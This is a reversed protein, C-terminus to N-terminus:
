YFLGRVDFKKYWPAEPPETAYKRISNSRIDFAEDAALRITLTDWVYPSTWKWIYAPIRVNRNGVEDQGFMVGPVLGVWADITFVSQLGPLTEFAAERDMKSQEDKWEDANTDTSLGTSYCASLYLETIKWSNGVKLGKGIEKMIERVSDHMNWDPDVVQGFIMAQHPSRHYIFQLKVNGVYSGNTAIDAFFRAAKLKPLDSLKPNKVEVFDQDLQDLRIPIVLTPRLARRQSQIVTLASTFSTIKQTDPSPKSREMALAAEMGMEAGWLSTDIGFKIAFDTSDLASIGEGPALLGSPDRGTLPDNGAYLFENPGGVMGAPDASTFRGLSPDYMRARNYYLGTVADQRAGAFGYPNASAVTPAILDEGWATYTRDDLVNGKTDLVQRVSGPGQSLCWRFAPQGNIYEFFGLHNDGGGRAFDKLLPVVAGNSVTFEFSADTGDNALYRTQGTLNDTESGRLGEPTITWTKNVGPGLVGTLHGQVDYSYSYTGDNTIRGDPDYGRTISQTMAEYLVVENIVVDPLQVLTLPNVGTGGQPVFIRVAAALQPALFTVKVTHLHTGATNSSVRFGQLIQYLPVPQFAGGVTPAVEVQFASLGGGGTPVSVEVASIPLPATNTLSLELFHAVANTNSRWGSGPADSDPAQGENALGPEYAPGNTSDASAQILSTPVPALTQGTQGTLQYASNYTYTTVNGNFVRSLRNGAPDYGIQDEYVRSGDSLRTWTESDLYGRPDYQLAASLGKSYDVINTVLDRPDYRYAVATLPTVSVGSASYTLGTLRGKQDRSLSAGAVFDLGSVLEWGTLRGVDDSYLYVQQSEGSTPAISAEILNEFDDWAYQTTYGESGQVSVLDGYVGYRYDLENTVGIAKFVTRRALPRDLNDWVYEIRCNTDEVSAVRGLADYTTIEIRAVTGSATYETSNTVRGFPDVAYVIHAGSPYTLNTLEGFANYQRRTSMGVADTQNTLRGSLDYQFATGAGNNGPGLIQTLNGLDDHLTRTAALTTGGAVTSATAPDGAPSWSTTAQTGVPDTASQVRALRDRSFTTTNGFTDAASNVMSFNDRTMQLATTDARVGPGVQQIAPNPASVKKLLGSTDFAFGLRQNGAADFINSVTGFPNYTLTAITPQSRTPEPQVYATGASGGAVTYLGYNTVTRGTYDTVFRKVTAQGGGMDTVTGLPEDFYGFYSTVSNSVGDFSYSQNTLNGDPDYGYFIEPRGTAGGQTVSPLQFDTVRRLKDRKIVTWTRTEAGDMRYTNTVQDTLDDYTFETTEGQPGIRTILRSRNDYARTESGLNPYVINTINGDTDYTCTTTSPTGTPDNGPRVDELLRRQDDYVFTATLNPGQSNLSTRQILLDGQYTFDTEPTLLNDSGNVPGLIQKLRGVTDYVYRTVNQNPDVTLITRGLGDYDFTWTYPNTQGTTTSSANYLPIIQYPLGYKGPTAYYVIHTVNSDMDTVSDVRNSADYDYHIKRASPNSPDQGPPFLDAIRENSSKPDYYDYQVAYGRWGIDVTPSQVTVGSYEWTNSTGDERLIQVPYPGDFRRSLTDGLTNTYIDLYFNPSPVPGSPYLTGSLSTAGGLPRTQTSSGEALDSLVVDSWYVEWEATNTLDLFFTNRLSPTTISVRDPHSGAPAFNRQYTITRTSNAPNEKWRTSTLAGWFFRNSPTTSTEYAAQITFGHPLGRETLLYNTADYAFQWGYGTASEEINTLAGGTASCYSLKWDGGAPDIIEVINGSFDASNYRFQATRGSSDTVTQISNSYGIIIPAAGGHPIIKTLKGEPDFDVEQYGYRSKYDSSANVYETLAYGAPTSTIMPALFRAWAPGGIGVNGIGDDNNVWNDYESSAYWFRGVGGNPFVLLVQNSSTTAVGKNWNTVNLRILRMGYPYEWGPGLPTSTWNAPVSEQSAAFDRSAKLSSYYLTGDLNLGAGNGRFLPVRFSYDGSLIDLSGGADDIPRILPSQRLPDPDVTIGLGAEVKTGNVTISVRPTRSGNRIQDADVIYPYLWYLSVGRISPAAGLVLNHNPGAGQGPTSYAIPTQFTALTFSLQNSTVSYVTNSLTAYPWDLPSAQTSEFGTITRSPDFDVASESQPASSLLSGWQPYYVWFFPYASPPSTTIAAPDFTLGAPLTITANVVTGFGNTSTSAVVINQGLDLGPSGASYGGSALGGGPGGWEITGGPNIYRVRVTGNSEQIPTAPVLVTPAVNTSTNGAPDICGGTLELGSGFGVGYAAPCVEVSFASQNGLDDIAQIKYCFTLGPVANSDDFATLPAPVTGILVDNTTSVGNTRRYIRTYTLDSEGSSLWTLQNTTPAVALVQLGLPQLVTTDRTLILSAVIQVGSRNTASIVILNQGELPLGVGNAVWNTGTQSVPSDQVMVVSNPDSVTGELTISTASTRFLESFNTVPQSITLQPFTSVAGSALSALRFFRMPGNMPFLAWLFGQDEYPAYPTAEWALSNLVNTTTQLSFGGATKPWGVVLISNTARALALM